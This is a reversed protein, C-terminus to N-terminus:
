AFHRHNKARLILADLDNVDVKWSKTIGAVRPLTGAHVLSRIKTRSVGLYKAAEETSVLRTTKRCCNCQGSCTKSVSGLNGCPMIKTRAITVDRLKV